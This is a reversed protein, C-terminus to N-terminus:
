AAGKARSNRLAGFTLCSRIRREFDAQAAAQAAELSDKITILHHPTYRAEYAPSDSASVEEIIFRGFSSQAGWTNHPFAGPDPYWELAKVRENPSPQSANDTLASVLDATTYENGADLWGHQVMWRIIPDIAVNSAAYRGVAVAAKINADQEDIHAILSALIDSVLTNLAEPSGYMEIGDALMKRVSAVQADTEYTITGQWAEPQPMAALAAEVTALVDDLKVYSFNQGSIPEIRRQLGKLREVLDSM